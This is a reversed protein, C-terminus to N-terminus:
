RQSSGKMTQELLTSAYIYHEDMSFRGSYSCQIGQERQYIEATFSEDQPNLEVEAEHFGLFVEHIPNFVKYLTEKICFITKGWDPKLRDDPQQAIWDRERATCIRPLIDVRM